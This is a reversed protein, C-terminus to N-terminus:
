HKLRIRTMNFIHNGHVYFRTVSTYIRYIIPGGQGQIWLICSLLGRYLSSKMTLMTLGLFYLENDEVVVM